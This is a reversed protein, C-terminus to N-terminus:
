IAVTDKGGGRHDRSARAVGEVEVSPDLGGLCAHIEAETDSSGRQIIAGEIGADVGDAGFESLSRVCGEVEFALSAFDREGLLMPLGQGLLDVVQTTDYTVIVEGFNM